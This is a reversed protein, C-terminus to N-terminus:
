PHVGSTVRCRSRPESAAPGLAALRRYARLVTLRNVGWRREADRVSPLRTGATWRGTAIEYLGHNVIEEVTGRRFPQSTIEDRQRPMFRAGRPQILCRASSDPVGRSIYKTYCISSLCTLWRRRTARGRRGDGPAHGPLSATSPDM